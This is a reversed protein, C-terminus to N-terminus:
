IVDFYDEQTFMNSKIILVVDLIELSLSFYFGPTFRLSLGNRLKRVDRSCLWDSRAFVVESGRVRGSRQCGRTLYNQSQKQIDPQAAAEGSRQELDLLNNIFTKNNVASLLLEIFRLYSTHKFTHINTNIKM